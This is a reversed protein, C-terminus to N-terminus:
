KRSTYFTSLKSTIDNEQHHWRTWSLRKVWGSNSSVPRAELRNWWVASLRSGPSVPLQRPSVEVWVAECTSCCVGNGRCCPPGSWLYSSVATLMDNLAPWALVDGVGCSWLTKQLLGRIYSRRWRRVGPVRGDCAEVLWLIAFLLWLPADDPLKEGLFLSKNILLKLDLLKWTISWYHDSFCFQHDFSGGCVSSIVAVWTLTRLNTQDSYNIILWM